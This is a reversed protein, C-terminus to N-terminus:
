ESAAPRDLLVSVPAPALENQEAAGYTAEIIFRPRKRAESLARWLYEGSISSQIMLLGGLILVVVMLTTWGEVPAGTWWNYILVPLYLLGLFALIVGAAAALRIPVMSFSIITDIAMTLQKALTWGSKGSLRPQRVYEVTAQRFGMWAVLAFLSFNSEGTQKLTDIVRRDIMFFDVGESPMERNGVVRKLLRHYFSAFVKKSAADGLRQTRKAWVVQAGQRWRDLMEVIVTPPDQMDAALTAAVNGRCLSLGCYLAAHAGFNRSLRVGRVRRDAQALQAIVIPTDDSSHDDVIIWEWEPIRGDTLARLQEYVAPLNRAENFAPSVVSLMSEGM